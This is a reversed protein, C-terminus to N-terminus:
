IKKNKYTKISYCKDCMGKAAHPINSTGCSICSDYLKAWYKPSKSYDYKRHCPVCMRKFDQRDRKYEGSLNAWHYKRENDNINCVECQKPQGYHKTIWDHVGFYGVDDGKWRSHLKEDKNKRREGDAKGFCKLSCYKVKQWQKPGRLSVNYFVNNCCECVKSKDKISMIFIGGFKTFATWNALHSKPLVFFPPNNKLTKM